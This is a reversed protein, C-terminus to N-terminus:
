SRGLEAHLGAGSSLVVWAAAVIGVASLLAAAACLLLLLAAGMCGAFLLVACRGWARSSCCCVHLAAGMCGAFLMWYCRRVQVVGTYQKQNGQIQMLIKLRELPAM